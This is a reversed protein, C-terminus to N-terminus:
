PSMEDRAGKSDPFANLHSRIVAQSGDLIQERAQKGLLKQPGVKVARLVHVRGPSADRGNNIGDLIAENLVEVRSAPHVSLRALILDCFNARNNRTDDLGVILPGLLAKRSALVHIRISIEPLLFFTKLAVM